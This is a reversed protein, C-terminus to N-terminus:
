IPASSSASPRAPELRVGEPSTTPPEAPAHATPRSVAEAETSWGWNVAPLQTRGPPTTTSAPKASARPTPSPSRIVKLVRRHVPPVGVLGGDQLTAFVRENRTTPRATVAAARGYGPTQKAGCHHPGSSLSALVAWPGEGSSSSCSSREAGNGSM